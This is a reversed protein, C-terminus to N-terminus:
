PPGVCNHGFQLVALVIDQISVSGNPPGTLGALPTRDYAPHYRDRNSGTNPPPTSLPDSNRDFPGSTINVGDNDLAGFRSVVTAIDGISVAGDRTLAPATPTDFFDWFSTDDRGGGAGPDLGAEREASCGDLDNDACPELDQSQPGVDTGITYSGRLAGGADPAGFSNLCFVPRGAALADFTFTVLGGATSTSGM